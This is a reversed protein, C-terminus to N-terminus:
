SHHHSALGEETSDQFRRLPYVPSENNEFRRRKHTGLSGICNLNVPVSHGAAVRIYHNCDSLFRHQKDTPQQTAAELHHFNIRFHQLIYTVSIYANCNVPAVPNHRVCGVIRRSLEEMKILITIHHVRVYM